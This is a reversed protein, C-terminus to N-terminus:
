LFVTWRAAILWFPSSVALAVVLVTFAQRSRGAAVRWSIWGLCGWYAAFFGIWIVAAAVAVLSGEISLVDFVMGCLALFPAALITPFLPIAYLSQLVDRLRVSEGHWVAQWLVLAVVSLFLAAAWAAVMAVRASRPTRLLSSTVTQVVMM